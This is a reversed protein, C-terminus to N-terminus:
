QRKSPDKSTPYNIGRNSLYLPIIPYKIVTICIQACLSISGKQKGSRTEMEFIYNNLHTTSKKWSHLRRWCVTIGQKKKERMFQIMKKVWFTISHSGLCLYLIKQWRQYFSHLELPDRQALVQLKVPVFPLSLPLASFQLLTLTSEMETLRNLEALASRSTNKGECSFRSGTNKMLIEQNGLMQCTNIWHLESIATGQNSTQVGSKRTGFNNAWKEM